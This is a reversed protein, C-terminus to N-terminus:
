KRFELNRILLLLTSIVTTWWLITEYPSLITIFKISILNELLILSGVFGIGLLIILLGDINKSKWFSEIKM